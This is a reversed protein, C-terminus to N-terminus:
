DEPLDVSDSQLRCNEDYISTAPIVIFKQAFAILMQAVTPMTARITYSSCDAKTPVPKVDTLGDPFLQARSPTGRAVTKWAM